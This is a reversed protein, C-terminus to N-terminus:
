PWTSSLLETSIGDVVSAATFILQFSPYCSTHCGNTVVKIKTTRLQQEKKDTTIIIADSSFREVVLLPPTSRVM